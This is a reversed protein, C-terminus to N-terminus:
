DKSAGVVSKMCGVVVSTETDELAVEEVEAKQMEEVETGVTEMDAVPVAVALIHLVILEEQDVATHGATNEEALKSTVAIHVAVATRDVVTGTV